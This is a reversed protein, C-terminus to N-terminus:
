SWMIAKIQHIALCQWIDFRANDVIIGKLSTTRLNSSTHIKDSCRM